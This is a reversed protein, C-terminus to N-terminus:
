GASALLVLAEAGCLHLLGLSGVLGLLSFYLCAQFDPDNHVASHARLVFTRLQHAATTLM